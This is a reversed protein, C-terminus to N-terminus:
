IMGWNILFKEIEKCAAEMEKEFEVEDFLQDFTNDCARFNIGNGDVGLSKWFYWWKTRKATWCDGAHAEIYDQILVDDTGEPHTKEKDDWNTVGYYLCLGIEIRMILDKDPSPDHRVLRYCLAPWTTSNQNYFSNAREVYNSYIPKITGGSREDIFDEIYKFCRIMMESKISDIGNAIAQAAKFDEPTNIVSKLSMNIDKTNRNTLKLLTDRFQNVLEKVALRQETEPFSVILDLWDLVEDDFSIPILTENLSLKGISSTSPLHKDLTLYYIVTNPDYKGTCYNYYDCCQEEQDDANIKVEIPFARKGLRILLDIRRDNDILEEKTIIANDYDSQCFGKQGLVNEVFAKLYLSGAGHSGRPLLLEHLFMCIRVEKNEVGLVSFINFDSGNRKRLAEVDAVIRKTEEILKTIPVNDSM